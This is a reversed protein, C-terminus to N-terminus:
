QNLKQKLEKIEKKLQVMKLERAVMLQNMKELENTKRERILKNEYEETVDRAVIITENISSIPTIFIYLMLKNDKSQFEYVDSALDSFSSIGVGKKSLRLIDVLPKGVMAIRSIKVISSFTDNTFIIKSEQDIVAIGENLNAFVLDMEALSKRLEKILESILESTNQEMDLSSPDHGCFAM